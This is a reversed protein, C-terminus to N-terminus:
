LSKKNAEKLAAQFLPKIFVEMYKVLDDKQITVTGNICDIITNALLESFSSILFQICNKSITYKKTKIEEAIAPEFTSAFDDYFLIRLQERGVDKLIQHLIDKNKEMYDSVIHIVEKYEKLLDYGKILRIIDYELMWKILDYINSFHYYFTKHNVGCFNILETVTIKSLPKQKLLGTLADAFMRKTNITTIREKTNEKM